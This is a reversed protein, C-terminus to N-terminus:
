FGSVTLSPLVSLLLNSRSDRSRVVEDGGTSDVGRGRFQDTMKHLFFLMISSLCCYVFNGVASVLFILSFIGIMALGAGNPWSIQDSLIQPFRPLELYSFGVKPSAEFGERHYLGLGLRADRPRVSAFLYISRSRYSLATVKCTEVPATDYSNLLMSWPSLVGGLNEALGHSQLM